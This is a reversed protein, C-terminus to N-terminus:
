RSVGQRVVWYCDELSGFSAVCAYGRWNTQEIRVHKGKSFNMCASRRFLVNATDRDGSQLMSTIRDRVDLDKCGFMSETITQGASAASYSSSSSSSSSYSGSSSSSRDDNAAVFVLWGVICGTVIVWRPIRKPATMSLPNM